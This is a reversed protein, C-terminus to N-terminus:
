LSENFLGFLVEGAPPIMDLYECYSEKAVETVGEVVVQLLM